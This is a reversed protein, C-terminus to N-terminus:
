KQVMGWVSDLAKNLWHGLLISAVHHSVQIKAWALEFFTKM